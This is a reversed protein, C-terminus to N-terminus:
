ADEGEQLKSNVWEVRYPNLLCGGSSSEKVYHEYNLNFPFLHDLGAESFQHELEAQMEGHVKWFAEEEATTCDENWLTRQIFTGLNGCLAIRNDPRFGETGNNIWWHYFNTLLTSQM